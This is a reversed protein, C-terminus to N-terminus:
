VYVQLLKSFETVIKHHRSAAPILITEGKEIAEPQDNVSVIARGEVCMYIIFSDFTNEFEFDETLHLLRTKFYDCEVMTNVQNEESSYSVKFDDKLEFKFADIAVDNHLERAQGRDDVRDWDYVRYTVDSTQQIEALMVGAGIAHIRGAEIFYTDGTTVLDQNLIATLSNNGLHKLYLEPTMPQNFGVILNGDEDADMVYWMETKGFSDHRKSALKDDPHLQVSLPKAADIFKILLPFKQGFRNFNHQGLIGVADEKLLEKLNKGKFFGNAVVSTDGEVDSIEWSEGVNPADNQKGLLRKLKTGGWIKEKLIPIFKIPYVTKM